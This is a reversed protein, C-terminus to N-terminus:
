VHGLDAQLTSTSTSTGRTRGSSIGIYGCAVAAVLVCILIALLAIIYAAMTSWFAYKYLVGACFSQQNPDREQHDRYIGFIWFNGAIFWCLLFIGNILDFIKFVMRRPPAEDPTEPTPKFYLETMSLLGRILVVCGAVALYIPIMYQRPCEYVFMVGIFINAIPIIISFIIGVVTCATGCFVYGGLNAALDKNDASYAKMDQLKEAMSGISNAKDREKAEAVEVPNFWM